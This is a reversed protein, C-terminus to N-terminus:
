QAEGEKGASPSASILTNAREAAEFEDRLQILASLAERFLYDRRPNGGSGYKNYCRELSNILKQVDNM